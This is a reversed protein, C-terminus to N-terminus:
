LIPHAYTTIENRSAQLFLTDVSDLNWIYPPMVSCYAAPFYCTDYHGAGHSHGLEHMQLVGREQTDAPNYSDSGSVDLGEQVSASNTSGLNATAAVGHCGSPNYMDHRHFLNYAHTGSIANNVLWSSYQARTTSGAGADCNGNSSSADPAAYPGRLRLDINVQGDWTGQHHNFGSTAWALWDSRANRVGQDVDVVVNSIEAVLLTIGGEGQSALAIRQLASTASVESWEIVQVDTGDDLRQALVNADWDLTRIHGYVYVHGTTFTASGGQIDGVFTRVFTYALPEGNDRATGRIDPPNYDFIFTERVAISLTEGTPPQLVLRQGSEAAAIVAAKLDPAAIALREEPLREGISVITDEAVTPVTCAAMTGLVLAVM